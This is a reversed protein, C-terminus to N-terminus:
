DVCNEKRGEGKARRYSMDHALVSLSPTLSVGRRVECAGVVCEALPESTRLPSWGFVGFGVACVSLSKM